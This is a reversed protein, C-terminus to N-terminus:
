PLAQHLTTAAPQGSRNQSFKIKGLESNCSAEAPVEPASILTADGEVEIESGLVDLPGPPVPVSPLM